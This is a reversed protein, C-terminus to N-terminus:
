VPKEIKITSLEKEGEATIQYEGLMTKRILKQQELAQIDTSSYRQVQFSVRIHSRDANYKKISILSKLIQKHQESLDMIM